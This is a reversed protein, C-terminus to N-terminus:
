PTSHPNSLIIYRACYLACDKAEDLVGSAMRLYFDNIMQEAVQKPTQEKM